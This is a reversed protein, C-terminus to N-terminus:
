RVHYKNLGPVQYRRGNAIVKSLLCYPLHLSFHSLDSYISHYEDDLYNFTVPENKLHLFINISFDGYM